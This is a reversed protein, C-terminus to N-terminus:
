KNTNMNVPYEEYAKELIQETAINIKITKVQQACIEKVEDFPLVVEKKIGTVCFISLMGNVLVPESIQGVNLSRIIAAERNQETLVRNSQYIIIYSEKDGYKLDSEVKGSKAFSNLKDRAKLITNQTTDYILAMFYSYEAPKTFDSLHTNYYNKSEEITVDINNSIESYYLASLYKEEITQHLLALEQQVQPSKDLGMERAREAAVKPVTYYKKVRSEFSKVDPSFTFEPYVIQIVKILNENIIQEGVTGYEKSQAIIIQVSFLFIFGIISQKM